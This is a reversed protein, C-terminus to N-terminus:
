MVRATALQVTGYGVGFQLAVKVVVEVEDNDQQATVLHVKLMSCAIGYHSFRYLAIVLQEEAQMQVQTSKNQFAPNDAIVEVLADFCDPEMHVYKRFIEPHNVKYAGLILRLLVRQKTIKSRLNYYRKSFLEALQGVYSETIEKIVSM